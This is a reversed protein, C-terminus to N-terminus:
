AFSWEESSATSDRAEVAAACVAEFDIDPFQRSRRLRISHALLVAGYDRGLRYICEGVSGSSLSRAAADDFATLQSAVFGISGDLVESGAASESATLAADMLELLHFSILSGRESVVARSVSRMIEGPSLSSQRPGELEKRSLWEFLAVRLLPYRDGPGLLRALRWVGAAVTVNHGFDALNRASGAFFERDFGSQAFRASLWQEGLERSGSDLASALSVDHDTVTPPDTLPPESWPQRSQAAYIACETLLDVFRDDGLPERLDGAAVVALLAHKGHQSPSYALYAFRSVAEFLADHGEAAAFEAVRGPIAELDREILPEYLLSVAAM